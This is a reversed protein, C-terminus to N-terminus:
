NDKFDMGRPAEGGGLEAAMRMISQESKQLMELQTHRLEKSAISKMRTLFDKIARLQLLLLVKIIQTWEAITDVEYEGFFIKHQEENRHGVQQKWQGLVKECLAVLKGSVVTLLMMHGSRSICRRCRLMTSCHALALKQFNLTSDIAHPSVHNAKNELAELLSVARNLCQCIVQNSRPSTRLDDWNQLSM